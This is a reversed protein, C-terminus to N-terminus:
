EAIRGDVLRLTHRICSPLDEAHHSVMIIHVGQRAIRSLIDRIHRRTAEDLGSFPEDLLLLYPEGVLARALLLRRLQGTSLTRIARNELNEAPTATVDQIRQRAETIEEPSYERYLGISAEFGSLVLELGSLNYAYHAQLRDSLLRTGRRLSEQDTVANGQPDHRNISGGYAPYEEGALLRLFTSKGAGNKGLVAWHEGRRLTWDIDHLVPVRELYVTAQRLEILPIEAFADGGPSANKEQHPVSPTGTAAETELRELPGSRVLRGKELVIERRVAEPLLERRHTALLLTSEAAIEELLALVRKLSSKDLANTFEDLLLLKPARMWARALLLLSLQGQSLRMLDGPLLDEIGFRAAVEAVRATDAETPNTYFLPTDSLGTLLVEEGKISWGARSYQEIQAASVLGTLARGTLPSAELVGGANAWLVRGSTPYTEGRLIRLLTSKGSGNVGSLALHEGARIDLTIDSLATNDRFAVTANELKVLLM